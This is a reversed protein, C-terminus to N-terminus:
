RNCCTCRSQFIKQLGICILLIPWVVATVHDSLVMVANLLFVLGILVIFVPVMKHHPCPCKQGMMNQNQDM